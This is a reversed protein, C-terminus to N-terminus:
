AALRSVDIVEHREWDANAPYYQLGDWWPLPVIIPAIGIERVVRDWAPQFVDTTFSDLEDGSEGGHYDEFLVGHAVFAALYYPYYESAGRPFQKLWNTSDYRVVDGMIADQHNHHWKVLNTGDQLIVDSINKGDWCHPNALKMKRTRWGGARGKGDCTFPQLLSKKVSSCTVFKDGTYEMWTPTLGASEAMLKYVLDEYRCTAVHRGLVAMNPIVPFPLEFGENAFWEVVRKQVGQKQREHLLKLAENPSAYPM